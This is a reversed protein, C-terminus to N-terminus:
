YLVKSVLNPTLILFFYFNDIEPNKQPGPSWSEAGIYQGGVSTGKPSPHHFTFLFSGRNTDLNIKWHILKISKFGFKLDFEVFLFYELKQTKVTLVLTHASEGQGLIWTRGGSAAFFHSDRDL